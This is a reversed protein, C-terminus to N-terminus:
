KQDSVEGVGLQRLLGLEDMKTWCETSKGDVIRDIDIATITIKKGTAPIGKFIGKHTGRATWQTVVKDGEAIMTDITFHIDPFANRLDTYFQKAGQVGRIQENPSSFYVTFDPTIFEELKDYKGKNWIEDVARRILNKNEVEVYNPTTIKKETKM